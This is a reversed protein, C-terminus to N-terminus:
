KLSWTVIVVLVIFSKATKRTKDPNAWALGRFHFSWLWPINVSDVDVGDESDVDDWEVSDVDDWEVCDEVDDWEVSDVDDWEVGDGWEDSDVDVCEVSDVDDWEAGDEWEVGDEVDDWEDSDVDVWEVSAVDDFEVAVTDCEEDDDLETELSLGRSHFGSDDSVCKFWPVWDDGPSWVVHNRPFVSFPSHSVTDVDDWEEGDGWKVSDVDDWEIGDEWEDSDVDDWEVGDEWEDSDVDDWEVSDVEGWEPDVSVCKWPVWDDGKPSWVHNRPFV